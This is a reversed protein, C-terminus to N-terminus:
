SYRCYHDIDFSSCYKHYYHHIIIISSKLYTHLVPNRVASSMLLSEHHRCFSVNLLFVSVCLGQSSSLTSQVFYYFHIVAFSLRMFYFCTFYFCQRLFVRTYVAVFTDYFSLVLMDWTNRRTQGYASCCCWKCWCHHWSRGRCNSCYGRCNCKVLNWGLLSNHTM